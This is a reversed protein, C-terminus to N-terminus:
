YAGLSAEFKNDEQRWRQLVTIVTVGDGLPQSKGSGFVMGLM